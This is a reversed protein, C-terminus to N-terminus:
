PMQENPDFGEMPPEAEPVIEKNAVDWAKIANVLDVAYKKNGYNPDKMLWKAYNISNELSVERIKKGKYKGFTFTYDGPDKVTANVAVNPPRSQNAPASPEPSIADGEQMDKTPISFTTLMAYKHAFSIAKNTAKDGSDMGESPITTRVWSGDEAHFYIEFNCRVHIMTGGSNTKREAFEKHVINVTTFVKHKALLIVLVNYIADISRYNFGQQTNRSDKAIPDLEAMIAPIASYIKLAPAPANIQLDLDKSM